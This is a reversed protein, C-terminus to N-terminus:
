RIKLRERERKIEERYKSIRERSSEIIEKERHIIRSFEKWEDARSSRLNAKSSSSSTSKIKYSYSEARSKKRNRTTTIDERSDAIKAKETEIARKMREIQHKIYDRSM